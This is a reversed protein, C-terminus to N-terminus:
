ITKGEAIRLTDKFRLRADRYFEQQEPTLKFNELRELFQKTEKENLRPIPNPYAM